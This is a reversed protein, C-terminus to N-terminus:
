EKEEALMKRARHYTVCAWNETKGFIHAIQRFSLEGFVRLSFVEKYPEDLVHLREHLRMATESDEYDEIFSSESSISEDLPEAPKERRLRSIHLNKAIGCLWTFIDCEGRFSDLSNMARFFVDSTLEEADAENGCLRLAYRYVRTFYIEYIEEFSMGNM